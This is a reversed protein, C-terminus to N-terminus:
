RAGGILLAASFAQRLKRFAATAASRARRCSSSRPAVVSWYPSLATGSGIWDQCIQFSGLRLFNSGPAVTWCAALLVSSSSPDGVVRDLGLVM